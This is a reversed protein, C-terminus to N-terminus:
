VNSHCQSLLVSISFNVYCALPAEEQLISRALDGHMQENDM